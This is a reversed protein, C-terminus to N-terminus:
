DTLIGSMFLAASAIVTDKLVSTMASMDGGLLKPLHIFLVFSFILIALLLAALAAKKNIIISIGAILMAVGSLYVWFIGGPMWEPVAGTMQQTNMFHNLGFVVFMLGFVVRGINAKM